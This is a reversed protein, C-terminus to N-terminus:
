KGKGQKMESVTVRRYGSRAGVFTGVMEPTVATGLGPAVLGANIKWGACKAAKATGVKMLLEAKAADKATKAEAEHRTADAVTACLEEARADGTLDEIRDEAVQLLSVVAASDRKFDIPPEVGGRVDDWFKAALVKMQDIVGPIADIQVRRLDGGCFAVLWARGAGACAMQAQVQFGYNLPYDTITEGEWEWGSGWLSWKIEVPVLLGGGYEEYDLSAGLGPCDDCELYRKVKRMQMSWREAAWAALAPEMHTGAQVAVNQSMDVDALKGAKRMHLQWPTEWPSEGFLAAVESAGIHAARLTHWHTESEVAISAM